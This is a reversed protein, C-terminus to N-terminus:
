KRIQIKCKRTFQEFLSNANAIQNQMSQYDFDSLDGYQANPDLPPMVGTKMYTALITNVDCLETHNQETIGDNCIIVSPRPESAASRMHTQLNKSLVHKQQIEKLTKVKKM